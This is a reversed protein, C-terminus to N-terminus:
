SSQANSPPASRVRCTREHAPRYAQPRIPTLPATFSADFAIGATRLADCESAYAAARALYAYTIAGLCSFLATFM